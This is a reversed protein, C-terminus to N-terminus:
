LCLHVFSLCTVGSFRVVSTIFYSYCVTNGVCLYRM